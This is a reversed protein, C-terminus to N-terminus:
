YPKVGSDSRIFHETSKMQCLLVGSVAVVVNAEISRICALLGCSQQTESSLQTLSTNPFINGIHIGPPVVFCCSLSPQGLKDVQSWKVEQGQPSAYPM